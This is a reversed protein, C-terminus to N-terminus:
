SSFDEPRIGEIFHRFEVVLQDQDPSADPEDESQLVVGEADLLADEAYITTGLRAALAIADSPRASVTHHRGGLTVRIEAFFTSDRLETIVVCDVTAGLEVLLDRLLDHTMPRATVVGQLAYAIATAEAAGIYIPLTRRAGAAEQLLLIPTNTPLEVRVAALHMEVM